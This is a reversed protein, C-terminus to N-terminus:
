VTCPVRQGFEPAYEPLTSTEPSKMAVELSRKRVEAIASKTSSSVGDIIDVFAHLTNHRRSVYNGWTEMLESGYSQLARFQPKSLERDLNASLREFREDDKYAMELAVLKWISLRPLLGISKATTSDFYAFVWSRRVDQDRVALDRLRDRMEFLRFQFEVELVARRQRRIAELGALSLVIVIILM